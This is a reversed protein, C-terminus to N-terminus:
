FTEQYHINGHCPVITSHTCTEKEDVPVPIESVQFAMTDPKQPHTGDMWGDMLYSLPDMINWGFM